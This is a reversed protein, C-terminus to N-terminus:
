EKGKSELLEHSEDYGKQYNRRATEGIKLCGDEYGQKYAKQNCEPCDPESCHEIQAEAKGAEYALTTQQHLFAM